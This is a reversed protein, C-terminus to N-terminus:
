SLCTCFAMACSFNAKSLKSFCRGASELSTSMCINSSTTEEFFGSTVDSMGGDTAASVAREGDVLEPGDGDCCPGSGGPQGGSCCHLCGFRWAILDTSIIESPHPLLWSAHCPTRASEEAGQSRLLAPETGKVAWSESLFSHGIGNRANESTVHTHHWCRVGKGQEQHNRAVTGSFLGTRPLEPECPLRREQVQFEESPRHM